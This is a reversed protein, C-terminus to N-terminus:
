RRHGTGPPAAAAIAFKNEMKKWSEQDKGTKIWENNTRGVISMEDETKTQDSSNM